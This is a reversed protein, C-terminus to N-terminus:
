KSESVVPAGFSPALRLMIPQVTLAAFPYNFGASEPDAIEADNVAM